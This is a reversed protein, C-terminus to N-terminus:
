ECWTSAGNDATSTKRPRPLGQLLTEVNVQAIVWGTPVLGILAMTVMGGCVLSMM